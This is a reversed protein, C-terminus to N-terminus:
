ANWEKVYAKVAESDLGLGKMAAFFDATKQKHLARVTEQALAIDGGVYWGSGRISYLIGRQELTEFSRQVTNPNVGAAVAIDRVSLLRQHPAFEGSAIHVCMQECIQPCIPRDKDLKWLM